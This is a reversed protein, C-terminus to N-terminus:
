PAVAQSANAVSQAIPQMQASKNMQELKKAAQLGGYIGFCGWIHFGVSLWDQVIVFLLADAAYLILGVWFAWDHGKRAMVGFFVFVSAMLAAMVLGLLQSAIGGMMAFGDVVQTMGLGVPFNLMAGTILLISNMVSLGAIWFFWNAGGAARRSIKHLEAASEAQNDPVSQPMERLVGDQIKLCSEKPKRASAEPNM